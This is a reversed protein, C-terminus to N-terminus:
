TLIFECLCLTAAHVVSSGFDSCSGRQQWLRQVFWAAALPAARVVSSGTRSLSRCGRVMMVAAAFHSGGLNGGGTDAMDATTTWLAIYGCPDSLATYPNEIIAEVPYTTLLAAAPNRATANTLRSAYFSGVNGALNTLHQSNANDSPARFYLLSLPSTSPTAGTGGLTGFLNIEFGDDETYNTVLSAASWEPLTSSPSLKSAKWINSVGRVTEVWLLWTVKTEQEYATMLQARNPFAMMTELDTAARGAFAGQGLLSFLVGFHLM